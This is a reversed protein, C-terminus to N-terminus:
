LNNYINSPWQNILRTITHYLWKVVFNIYFPYFLLVLFAIVANGYKRMSILTILLIISLFYFAHRFLVYWLELSDIAENEYYTKRDNTIIDSHSEKLQEALEKNKALLTNLLDVTYQSNITATNLYSNMTNANTLENNFLTTLQEAINKAKEKLESEQMANYSTEGESYVYYNMRAKKFQDPATKLNTEADLYKQKLEKTIKDKQCSPGCILSSDQLLADIQQQISQQNQLLASNDDNNNTGSLSEQISAVLSDM